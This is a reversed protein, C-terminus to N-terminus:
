KLTELGLKRLRYRLAGLGIGLLRAAKAKNHNSQELANIITDKEVNELFSGLGQSNTDDAYAGPESEVPQNMAVEPLLLEDAEITNNECLTMARELINELERVNGPFSYAKLKTMAAKSLRLKQNSNNSSLDVLIKEVLAPIDDSHDRLPPIELEIVNIRYFLDQRFKGLKVLESLDRHTASLIRVDVPIEKIANVPRIQKEQIARLLKVQMSLPLDAIEDLFLTGGQAAQFLGQKDTVAGTFAGKVYGFFESEMLESPIAGCNVPVFPNTTRAGLAHIMRAAVEKGSGSEGKIYIPAQSRAFKKIQDRLKEMANSKGILKSLVNDQLSPQKSPNGNQTEALSPEDEKPLQLATKALDRLQKPGVPKSLFDFAGAKLAKVASEVDGYATIMAVPTNPHKQGILRVLEIGNGDPLRMDTLCFDFKHALLHEKAQQINEATYCELGMPKLTMVLLELIASEDDVVLCRKSM